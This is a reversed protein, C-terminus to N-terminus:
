AYSARRTFAARLSGNYQPLHGPLPNPLLIDHNCVLIPQSKVDDLATLYFNLKGAYEPKFPGAKLEIVVYCHLRLHYFLLDLYFDEGGVELHYQRGVFAFGKGLELM